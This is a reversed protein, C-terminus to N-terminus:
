SLLKVRGFRALVGVIPNTLDPGTLLEQNLSEGAFQASCDFVVRIKRPKGPHHVGHHPIYWTRIVPLDDMRRAYGKVLLNSM